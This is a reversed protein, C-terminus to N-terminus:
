PVLFKLLEEQLEIKVKLDKEIKFVEDDVHVHNGGWSVNISKGQVSKLRATEEIGKLKNAVYTALKDKDAEQVMVVELAGDDPHAHPALFLNPGISRTNMIEVLLYTGSYDAGDIELKCTRPEYTHICEELLQLAKKLSEEPSLEEGEKVAKKMQRMLFPFLGYGYSELFFPAEDFNHILGVDYRKINWQQWSKILSETDGHLELTKAINNATGLPLLGIPWSKELKKRKLLEKTIKRVTGDGGAVVLFDVEKDIDKWDDEKTSAYRCEFGNAEILSILEEPKHEEDGAGPNHILQALKMIMIQLCNLGCFQVM